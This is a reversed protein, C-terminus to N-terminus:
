HHIWRKLWVDYVSYFRNGESNYDSYILEYDTLSKLSRLITASSGLNHKRIFDIATPKYVIDEYAIAKLLQWQAKTLLNRQSYFVIEQENLISLAQQKWLELTVETQTAAFVQKCLSQVFYTHLDCWDLIEHIIDPSIKKNYSKFQNEIFESYSTRDIKNLKIIDTSRYIPRQPLSFLDIMLHQQSGAFIFSTKKIKPHYNKAM